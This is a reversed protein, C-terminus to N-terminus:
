RRRAAAVVPKAWDPTRTLDKPEVIRGREMRLVLTPTPVIL